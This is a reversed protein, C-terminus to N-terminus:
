PVAGLVYFLTVKLAQWVLPDGTLMQVYNDLGTFEPPTIVDYHSLSLVLSGIMPGATWLLFGILWPSAFLYFALEERRALPGRQQGVPKRAITAMEKGWIRALPSPHGTPVACGDRGAM